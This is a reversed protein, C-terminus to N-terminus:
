SHNQLLHIPSPENQDSFMLCGDVRVFARFRVQGKEAYREKFKLIYGEDV